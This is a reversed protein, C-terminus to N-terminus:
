SGSVWYDVFRSSFTSLNLGDGEDLLFRQINSRLSAKWTRSNFFGARHAADQVNDSFALTKKDDNFKSSFLQSISASIATASRFGIISLGAQSGCHPCRFGRNRGASEQKKPIVVPIQETGCSSCTHREGEAINLQMCSPCIFSEVMNRQVDQHDNPYIMVVKDSNKFYLNYFAGLDTIQVSGLENTTSVWGTEGCDRCNIVPLYTAAQQENLDTALAYTIETSSVKALLRRLERFWVQVQVSLFPRLSDETGSRAHSILAYLADIAINTSDSRLEPHNIGLDECIQENQVFGGAIYALLEQTFAHEMLHAGLSLRAQDSMIDTYIFNEDLWAKVATELFLVQNDQAVVELLEEMSAKDPITFDTPTKGEFFESATLRDEVVVADQEFPEGFIEAAYKIIGAASEKSGMTASTGICCLHGVPTYLRSKLRRLLCALDTGQAGDFTHLEDVAIYKLTDPSNNNWLLADKPRVLLYDLMKYNTLLIDPPSSLMTEHDTIIRDETMARSPASEYGGVYMGATVNGRLEPSTHILEAIRKAQDTALANMPYIILAKIGKEGRHKYCYELIPYLFCETKGSGTGTAILTSRGDEGTLREFAKQQHVYPKYRPHIADFFDDAVDEAVRFPLRVGVYPERFVSDKTALLNQMSGKFGPATMPFTTEIYDSLGKELQRALISPLM